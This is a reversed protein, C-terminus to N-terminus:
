DKENIEKLSKSFKHFNPFGVKAKKLYYVFKLPLDTTLM